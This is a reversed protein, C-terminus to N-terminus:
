ANAIEEGDADREKMRLIVDEATNMASVIYHADEKGIRDMAALKQARARAARVDALGRAKMPSM